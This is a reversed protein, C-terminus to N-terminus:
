SGPDAFEVWASYKEIEGTVAAFYTQQIEKTIVGRTGTGIPRGDVERIPTVEAATGTLFAEDATYVDSRVLNREIVEYGLDRAIEIASDRTIGKLIGSSEPPTVLVGERIIFLNEGTGEGIRGDPALMIADDYGAKIAEVKALGSNIYQGTAKAQAPLVNPDPRRWTSIMLRAGNEICDAGLYTGWPWVAVAVNIPAHLPNLGMEGYGHYVLPRIYCSTLGNARVTEKVAAVVEDQSFPVEMMYVASSHFLRRIHDTLRFIGAGRATEYARIGEFVGSGYHLAHTLVHVNADEWDVLKGDMWVKDVPQIPM